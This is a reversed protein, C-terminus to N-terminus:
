GYVRKSSAAGTIRAVHFLNPFVSIIIVYIFVVKYIFFIMEYCLKINFKRKIDSKIHEGKIYLVIFVVLSRASTHAFTENTNKGRKSSALTPRDTPLGFPKRQNDQFGNFCDEYKIHLKTIVLSHGRNIKPDSPWLDLNGLGQFNFHNGIIKKFVIRLM